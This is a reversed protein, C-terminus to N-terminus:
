FEWETQFRNIRIRLLCKQCAALLTDNEVDKKEYVLVSDCNLCVEVNSGEKEKIELSEKSEVLTSVTPDYKAFKEYCDGCGRILYDYLKEENIKQDVIEYIPTFDFLCQILTQRYKWQYCCKVCCYIRIEEYCLKTKQTQLLIKGDCIPCVRYSEEKWQTVDIEGSIMKAWMSSQYGNEIKDSILLWETINESKIKPFALFAIEEEVKLDDLRYLLTCTKCFWTKYNHHKNLNVDEVFIELDPEDCFECGVYFPYLNFESTKRIQFEETSPVGRKAFKLIWGSDILLVWDQSANLKEIVEPRYKEIKKKEDVMKISSFTLDRPAIFFQYEFEEEAPLMVKVAEDEKMMLGKEPSWSGLLPTSGMIFFSEGESLNPESPKYFLVPRKLSSPLM